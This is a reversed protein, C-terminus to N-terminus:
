LSHCDNSSLSENRRSNNSFYSAARWSPSCSVSFSSSSSSSRQSIVIIQNIQNIQNQAGSSCLNYQVM